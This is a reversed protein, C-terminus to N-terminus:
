RLVKPPEQQPYVYEWPWKGSVVRCGVIMMGTVLAGGLFGVVIMWVTLESRPVITIVFFISLTFPLAVIWLVLGVILWEYYDLKRKRM